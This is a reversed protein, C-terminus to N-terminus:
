GNNDEKTELKIINKNTHNIIKLAHEYADRAGKWYRMDEYLDKHVVKSKTLQRIASNCKELEDSLVSIIHQNEKSINVM